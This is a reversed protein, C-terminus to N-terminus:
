DEFFMLLREMESDSFAKGDHSVLHIEKGNSEDKIYLEKKRNQMWISLASIIAHISKSSILAILVEELGMQNSNEQVERMKSDVDNVIFLQYLYNLDEFDGNCSFLFEKERM